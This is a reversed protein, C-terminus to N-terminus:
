SALIRLVWIPDTHSDGACVLFIVGSSGCAVYARGKSVNLRGSFDICLVSCLNQQVHVIDKAFIRPTMASEPVGDLVSRKSHPTGAAGSNDSRIRHVEDAFLTKGRLLADTGYCRNRLPINALVTIAGHFHYCSYGERLM